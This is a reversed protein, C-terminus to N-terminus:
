GAAVSHVPETWGLRARNEQVLHYLQELQVEVARELERHAECTLLRLGAPSRCFSGPRDGVCCHGAPRIDIIIV